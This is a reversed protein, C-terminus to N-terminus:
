KLLEKKDDKYEPYETRVFGVQVMALVYVLERTSMDSLLTKITEFKNKTM